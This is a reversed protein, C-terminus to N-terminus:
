SGPQGRRRRAVAAGLAGLAAVLGALSRTTPAASVACSGDKSKGPSTAPSGASSQSGGVNKAGAASGGVSPTPDPESPTGGVGAGGTDPAGGAGAMGPDSQCRFCDYTLAGGPTARTCTSKQCTGPQDGQNGANDCPKGIKAADCADLPPIDAFAPAALLLTGLLWSANVLKFQHM